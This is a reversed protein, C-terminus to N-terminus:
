FSTRYTVGVVRPKQLQWEIFSAYPELVIADENLANEVYLHVSPSRGWLM